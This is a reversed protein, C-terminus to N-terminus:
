PAPPRSSLRLGYPKLAGEVHDRWADRSGNPFWSVVRAVCAALRIARPEDLELAGRKYEDVMSNVAKEIMPALSEYRQADSAAAVLSELVSLADDHTSTTPEDERTAEYNEGDYTKARAREDSGVEVVELFETGIRIADGLALERREQIKKGNLFTGNSSGLDELELTSGTLIVIAHERSVRGSSIVLSCYPSRGILTQGQRLPFHTQRFKLWM